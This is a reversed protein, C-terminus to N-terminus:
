YDETGSSDLPAAGGAHRKRYEGPTLGSSRKFMRIFSNANQYGVQLAIDQIRLDLNTLLAKAREIRLSNLYESFNVNTKEKFISSLYGPTLNLKDAVLNLNIDEGYHQDLYDLVFGIVPDRTETRSSIAALVPRVLGHLWDRYQEASYFTEPPKGNPPVLKEATQEPLNLKVVTKGIQEAAGRAFARFDAAAADKSRLQELQRDIWGFVAEESGSQLLNHLEEGHTVKLHFSKASSARPEVIVQTEGNLRRENLLPLLNNYAETFATEGSYVPSVAITLYLSQENRLVEKLTDLVQLIGSQPGPDFLLLLLQDQEPQLAVSEGGDGTFLKQILEWLMLTHRESADPQEKFSIKFLISAYPRDPPLLDELEALKSGLPINKVKHTFAYQRVLSNKRELDTQIFRHNELISSLRDGIIAFEKVSGLKGPGGGSKRDLAAILRQLPQNVRLSFFLSYLVSVLVTASLLATLLLRMGQMGEAIASVQIVRAYTFGTQRGKEYFYYENGIREHLSGGDALQATRVPNEGTSYLLKGQEDLIYFPNGAADGYAALMRAPDLMIIGYVEEYPIAKVLVPLMLGLQRTSHVTNETFPAAPLVKMFQNGMTERRWFDAPYAGSAWYKGFMDDASSLGDKELVYDEKKFFLIFNRIHLFPNTYLTALDANVERPIDYRRNQALHSLIGVNATWPESQTLTLIMNQTLRFHNEYGEVTQQLNLENQRVIEDYVKDSLYYYSFLTFSAFALIVSLFSLMLKVFLANPAFTGARPGKM